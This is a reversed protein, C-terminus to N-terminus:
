TRICVCDFNTCTCSDMYMLIDITWSILKKFVVSVNTTFITSIENANDIIFGKSSYGQQFFLFSWFFFHFLFFCFFFFFFFFLPSRFRKKKGLTMEASTDSSLEQKLIFRKSKDRVDSVFVFFYSFLSVSSFYTSHWLLNSHRM